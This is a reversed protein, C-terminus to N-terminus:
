DGGCSSCSSCSGGGRNGGNGPGLWKIVKYLVFAGIACKLYFEYDNNSNDTCATLFMASSLALFISKPTVIKNSVFRGWYEKPPFCGFEARYLNKTEIYNNRDETKAASNIPSPTHHIERGLLVGCLDHWYSRTFTMHLHWVLDVTKSPVVRSNSVYVLYIFRKYEQFAGKAYQEKWKNEKALKELFLSENGNCSVKFNEIKNKLNM